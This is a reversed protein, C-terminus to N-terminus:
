NFFAFELVTRYNNSKVFYTNLELCGSNYLTFGETSNIQTNGYHFTNTKYKYM